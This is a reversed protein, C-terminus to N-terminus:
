ERIDGPVKESWAIEGSALKMMLLASLQARETLSDKLMFEQDSHIKGGRVGLNDVNPLGAAALNNGDCCGGTPKWSLSFGLTEGCDRLLEFLRLNSQSLIKPKRNFHGHLEFAYGERGNLREVLQRAEGLFWAEDEPAAIRVNFRAIALDPVINVPGGGEVYGVNVTVGERRGNLADIATIFEALLAIANRGAAHDRGAHAARGRAVVSFNGSGKRAGALSGDPLSPEYVLGLHNRKAADLLLPASGPSGIEEDPNILVEWGINEAWPSQELAQLATLMVLLGGKLDAVGPGNLTQEDLWRCAQFAHEIGFVTDMHGGLFIRLPAEPRKRISLARGLARDELEGRKNVVQYPKLEILRQEGGLPAFLEALRTAMRDLGDLNQSGSNIAALTLLEEVLTDQRAAIPDLYAQYLPM